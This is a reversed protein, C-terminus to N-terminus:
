LILPFNVNIMCLPSSNILPRQSSNSVPCTRIQQYMVRIQWWCIESQVLLSECLTMTKDLLLGAFWHSVKQLTNQSWREMMLPSKLKEGEILCSLSRELFCGMISWYPLYPSHIDGCICVIYIHIYSCRSFSRISVLWLRFLCRGQLQKTHWRQNLVSNDPHSKPKSM